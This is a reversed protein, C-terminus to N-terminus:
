KSDVMKWKGDEKVLTIEGTKERGDKLSKAKIKVVATDGNETSSVISINQWTKQVNPQKIITDILEPSMKANKAIRSKVKAADGNAFGEQIEKFAKEPSDSCGTVFVLGMACLLGALLARIKM